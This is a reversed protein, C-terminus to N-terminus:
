HPLPLGSLAMKPHGAAPATIMAIAILIRQRRILPVVKFMQAGSVFIGAILGAAIAALLIRGIM